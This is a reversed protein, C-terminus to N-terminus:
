EHWIRRWVSLDMGARYRSSPTQPRASPWHRAKGPNEALSRAPTSSTGTLAPSSTCSLDAAPPAPERRSRGGTRFSLGSDPWSSPAVTSSGPWPASVPSTTIGAPGPATASPSSPSGPTTARGPARIPSTSPMATASRSGRGAQRSPRPLVARDRARRSAAPQRATGLRLQRLQRRLIRAWVQGTGTPLLHAIGDGLARPSRCNALRVSRREAAPRSAIM